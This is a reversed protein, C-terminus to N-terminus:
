TQFVGQMWSIVWGKQEYLFLFCWVPSPKEARVIGHFQHRSHQSGAIGLIIQWYVPRRHAQLVHLHKFVSQLRLNIVPIYLPTCWSCASFIRVILWARLGVQLIRFIEQCHPLPAILIIATDNRNRTNVHALYRGPATNRQSFPFGRHTHVALVFSLSSAPISNYEDKGPHKPHASIFEGFQFILIVVFRRLQGLDASLFHLLARVEQGPINQHCEVIPDVYPTFCASGQWVRGVFTVLQTYAYGWGSGKINTVSGSFLTRPVVEKRVVQTSRQDAVHYIHVNVHHFDWPKDAM